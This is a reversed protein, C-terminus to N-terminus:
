DTGNCLAQGVPQYKHNGIGSSLNSPTRHKGISLCLSRKTLVGPHWPLLGCAEGVGGRGGIAETRGHILALGALGQMQISNNPTEHWVEMHLCEENGMKNLTNRGTIIEELCQGPQEHM